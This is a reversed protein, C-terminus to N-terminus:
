SLLAAAKLIEPLKEHRLAEVMATMIGDVAWDLQGSMAKRIAEQVEEPTEKVSVWKGDPRSVETMGDKGYTASVIQDLRIMCAKGDLHHLQVYTSCFWTQLFPLDVKSM